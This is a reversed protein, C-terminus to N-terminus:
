PAARSLAETAEELRHLEDVMNQYADDLRRVADGLPNYRPYPLWPDLGAIEDRLTMLRKKAALVLDYRDPLPDRNAMSRRMVCDLRQDLTLDRTM